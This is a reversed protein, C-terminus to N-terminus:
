QKTNILRVLYSFRHALTSLFGGILLMPIIEKMGYFYIPYTLIIIGIVFDIQDWPIWAEGPPIGKKRKIYSEVLDGLIAGFSFLFGIALAQKLPSPAGWAGTQSIFYYSLSGFLIASLFGRWTKNKGFLHENISANWFRMRVLVPVMNAIMGSALLLLLSYFFRLTYAEYLGIWQLFLLMLIYTYSGAVLDDLIIPGATQKKEKNISGIPPIFKLIDLIRFICFSIFSFIIIQYSNLNLEFLFFNALWMGLWEDIVIWSFDHPENGKKLNKKQFFYISYFTIGLFVVFFISYFIKGLFFYVILSTTLSVFSGLTGPFKSIKGLGFLSSIKEEINNM